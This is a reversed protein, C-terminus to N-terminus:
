LESLITTIHHFSSDYYCEKVRYYNNNYKVRNDVSISTGSLFYGKYRVDDLRGQTDIREFASVPVMRCKTITTSDTWTFTWENFYNQSSAKTVLYCNHELLSEFTM